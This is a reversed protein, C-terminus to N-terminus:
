IIANVYGMMEERLALTDKQQNEQDKIGRLAELPLMQLEPRSPIKIFEELAPTAMPSPLGPSLSGSGVANVKNETQSKM